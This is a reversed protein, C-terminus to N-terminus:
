LHYRPDQRPSIRGSNKISGIRAVGELTMYTCITLLIDKEALSGIYLM